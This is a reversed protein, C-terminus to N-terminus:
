PCIQSAKKLDAWFCGPQAGGEMVLVFAGSAYPPSYLWTGALQESLDMLMIRRNPIMDFEIETEFIWPGERPSGEPVAIRQVADAQDLSYVTDIRDTTIIWLSDFSSNVHSMDVRLKATLLGPEGGIYQYGGWPPGSEQLTCIAAVPDWSDGLDASGYFFAGVWKSVFDTTFDTM